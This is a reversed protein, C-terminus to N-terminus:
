INMRRRNWITINKHGDDEEEEEFKRLPTHSSFASLLAGKLTISEFDIAPAASKWIQCAVHPFNPQPTDGIQVDFAM